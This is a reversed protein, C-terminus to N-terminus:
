DTVVALRDSSLPAEHSKVDWAIIPSVLPRQLRFGRRWWRRTFDFRCLQLNRSRWKCVSDLFKLFAGAFVMGVMNRLRAPIAGDFWAMIAGIFAALHFMAGPARAIAHSEINAAEPKARFLLGQEGLGTAEPHERYPINHLSDIPTVLTGCSGIKPKQM